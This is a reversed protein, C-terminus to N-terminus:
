DDGSYGDYSNYGTRQGYIVQKTHDKLKSEMAPSHKGHMISADLDYDGTIIPTNRYIKPAVIHDQAHKPRKM